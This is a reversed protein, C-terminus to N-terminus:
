DSPPFDSGGIGQLCLLQGGPTGAQWSIPDASWNAGLPFPFFFRDSIGMRLWASTDWRKKVTWSIPESFSLLNGLNGCSHHVFSIWIYAQSMSFTMSRNSYEIAEEWLLSIYIYRHHQTQPLPPYLTYKTNSVFIFNGIAFTWNTTWEFSVNHLVCSISVRNM